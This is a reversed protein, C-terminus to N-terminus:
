RPPLPELGPYRNTGTIQVAGAGMRHRGDVERRMSKFM